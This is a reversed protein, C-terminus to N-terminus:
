AIGRTHPVSSRAFACVCCTTRRARRHRRANAGPDAFVHVHRYAARHDADGARADRHSAAPNSEAAAADSECENDARPNAYGGGTDPDAVLSLARPGSWDCANRPPLAATVYPNTVMM